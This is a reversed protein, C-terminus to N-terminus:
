CFESKINPNILRRIIGRVALTVAERSSKKAKWGSYGELLSCDLLTEKVDGKWGRSGGDIGCHFTIEVDNKLGLEEIVINAIDLVKIRDVSGVNFVQFAKLISRTRTVPEGAFLMLADICDTIHVYSKNQKGNGQIDLSLPNRFLRRIFDYIVGHNARAGVINALRFAVASIDFM